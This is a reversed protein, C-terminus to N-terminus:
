EDEIKWRVRVDTHEPNSPDQSFASTEGVTDERIGTNRVACCACVTVYCV